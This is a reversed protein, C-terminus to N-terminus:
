LREGPRSESGTEFEWLKVGTKGNIAYLKKDLSGIYVTGDAGIAPSSTVWGGTKFDWLKTGATAKAKTANTNSSSPQVPDEKGCGVLAVVTIMLLIQKMRGWGVPFEEIRGVVIFRHSQLSIRGPKAMPQGCDPTLDPLFEPLPQRRFQHSNLIARFYLSLFHDSRLSEFM